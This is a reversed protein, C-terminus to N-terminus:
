IIQKLLIRRAKSRGNAKRNELEYIINRLDIISINNVIGKRLFPIKTMTFGTIASLQHYTLDLEDILGNIQITLETKMLREESNPYDLDQFVNGSGIETM